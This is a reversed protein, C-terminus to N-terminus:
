AREPWVTAASRWLRRSATSPRPRVRTATGSTLCQVVEGSALTAAPFYATVPKAGLDITATPKPKPTESPKPGRDQQAQAAGRAARSKPATTTAAM